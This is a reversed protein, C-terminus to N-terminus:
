PGGSGQKRFVHNQSHGDVPGPNLPHSARNFIIPLSTLHPRANTYSPLDPLSPPSRDTTRLSCSNHPAHSDPPSTLSAIFLHPAVSHRLQTPSHLTRSSSQARHSTARPTSADCLRSPARTRHPLLRRALPSISPTPSGRLLQRRPIRDDSNGLAAGVLHDGNAGESPETSRCSCFNCRYFAAPSQANQTLDRGPDCWLRTVASRNPARVHKSLQSM